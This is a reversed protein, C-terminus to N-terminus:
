KCAYRGSATYGCDTGYTNRSAPYSPAQYPQEYSPRQTGAEGTYPNVNGRTSYNDLDTKNPRSRYHGEVYTGDKNARPKVYVQASASLAIAALTIVVLKKM